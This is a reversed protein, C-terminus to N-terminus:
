GEKGLNYLIRIDGGACFAKGGTGTIVVCGVAPDNEFRDLASAFEHVMNLTLANLAKPRNLTILGCCGRKECIVEADIM